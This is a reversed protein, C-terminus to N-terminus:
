SSRRDCFEPLGDRSIGCACQGSSRDNLALCQPCCWRGGTWIRVEPEYITAALVRIDAITFEDQTLEKHLLQKM